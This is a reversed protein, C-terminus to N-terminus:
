ARRRRSAPAAFPGCSADIIALEDKSALTRDWEALRPAIIRNWLWPQGAVIQTLVFGYPMQPAAVSSVLDWFPRSSRVHHDAHRTLNVTAISSLVHRCEWSHRPEIPSGPVRVLGYHQVYNSVEANWKVHLMVALNLVGGIPGAAAFGLVVFAVTFGHGILVKNGPSWPPRGRRALRARERAWAGRYQGLTSRAFFRGVTEGRRATVPDDPTCVDAHHGYVHEIAYSGDLGYGYLANGLFVASPSAIRHVLEHARSMCILGATVSFSLLMGAYGGWGMQERVKFLDYGVFWEVGRGIFLFDGPRSSTGDLMWLMLCLMTLFVPACAFLSLTSLRSRRQQHDGRGAFHDLIPFLVTVAVFGTWAYAGGFLVGGTCLAFLSLSLLLGPM